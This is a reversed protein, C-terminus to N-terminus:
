GQVQATTWAKLVKSLVVKSAFNLLDMAFGARLEAETEHLSVFLERDRVVTVKFSTVLEGRLGVSRHLSEFAPKVPKATLCSSSIM